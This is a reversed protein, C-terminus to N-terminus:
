FTLRKSVTFGWTAPDGLHIGGFDYAYSIYRRDAINRGWLAVELGNHAVGIRTNFLHYTNQEITNALDFYQKGIMMWEARVFIRVNEDDVYNYQVALMSTTRPTFIQRNGDMNAMEEQGVPLSLTKYKADTLGFNYDVQLGKLPQASLELEIGKSELEGANRTVTVAEPLVLTPVQADKVSVFFIAANVLLRKDYFSSKYGVEFNNSFEPKYEFLVGQSPDSSIQTLGGTRYGRTFMGYVQSYESLVYTVGLKPSFATYDTTASTDPRMVFNYNPDLAYEFEGLASQKKKEYDYRIGATISLNGFAYTAQGYGSIGDSEGEATNIISSYPLANEDVYQAYERVSNGTQVSCESPLFIWRSDVKISFCFNNADLGQVGPTFVNVNNWDKGYNNNITIMDLGSFDGDIPQDYYRYNSQYTTLSLFNIAKGAHNIKLSAM